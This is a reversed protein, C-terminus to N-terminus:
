LKVKYNIYLKNWIDEWYTGGEKETQERWTQTELLLEAFIKMLAMKRSQM